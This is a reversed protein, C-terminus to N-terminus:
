SLCTNIWELYAPLGREFPLAIIEPVEYPHHEFLMAEIKQYHAKTSKILLLSEQVTEIKGQWEYVSLLGPLINVCAALNKSVLLQALKKATEKDPCTCLILDFVTAM